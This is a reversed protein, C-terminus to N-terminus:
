TYKIIIMIICISGLLLFKYVKSRSICVSNSNVVVLLVSSSYTTWNTRPVMTADIQTLSSLALKLKRRYQPDRAIPNAEFYVTKIGTVPQLLDVDGWHDLQNHNFQLVFFFKKFLPLAFSLFVHLSPLSIKYCPLPPLSGPPMLPVGWGLIVDTM